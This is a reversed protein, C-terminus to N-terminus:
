KTLMGIFTRGNKNQVLKLFYLNGDCQSEQLSAYALVCPNLNFLLESSSNHTSACHAELYILHKATMM